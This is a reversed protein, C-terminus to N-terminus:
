KFDRLNGARNRALEPKILIQSFRQRVEEAQMM